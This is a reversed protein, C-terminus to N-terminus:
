RKLVNYKRKVQVFNVWIINLVNSNSNSAVDKVRKNPTIRLFYNYDENM